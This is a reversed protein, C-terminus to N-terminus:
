VQILANYLSISLIIKDAPEVTLFVPFLCRVEPFYQGIAKLQIDFKSFSSKLAKIWLNLVVLFHWEFAIM